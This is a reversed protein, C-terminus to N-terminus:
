FVAETPPMQRYSKCDTEVLQFASLTAWPVLSHAWDRNSIQNDHPPPRDKARFIESTNREVKWVEKPPRPHEEGSGPEMKRGASSMHSAILTPKPAAFESHKEPKVDTRETGTKSVAPLPLSRTETHSDVVPRQTELRVLEAADRQLTLKTPAPQINGILLLSIVCLFALSGTTLLAQIPGPHWSRAPRRSPRIQGASFKITQLLHMCDKHNKTFGHAPSSRFNRNMRTTSATRTSM